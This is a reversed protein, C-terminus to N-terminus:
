PRPDSCWPYSLQLKRHGCDELGDFIPDVAGLGAQHGQFLFRLKLSTELGLTKYRGVRSSACLLHVFRVSHKKIFRPPKAVAKLTGAKQWQGEYDMALDTTSECHVPKPPM